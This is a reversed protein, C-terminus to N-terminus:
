QVPEIAPFTWTGDLIGARSRYWRPHLRRPFGAPPTNHWSAGQILAVLADTGIGLRSAEALLPGLYQGAFQERRRARL